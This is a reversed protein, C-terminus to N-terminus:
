GTRKGPKTREALRRRIACRRLAAGREGRRDGQPDPQARVGAAQALQGQHGAGAPGELYRGRDDVLALVDASPSMQVILPAVAVVAGVGAFSVAAVNLFDRRRVGDDTPGATTPVEASRAKTAMMGRQSAIHSCTGSPMHAPESRASAPAIPPGSLSPNPSQSPASIRKASHSLRRAGHSPRRNLAM